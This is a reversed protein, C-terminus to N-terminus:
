SIGSAQKRDGGADPRQIRLANSVRLSVDIYDLIESTSISFDREHAAYNRLRKLEDILKLIRPEVVEHQRLLSLVRGPPTRSNVDLQAQQATQRFATEVLLWAEIAAGRPNTEALRYLRNEYEALVEAEVRESPPMDISESPSPSPSIAPPLQAEDADQELKQVRKGFEFEIDKFRLLKLDEILELLPRFGRILM